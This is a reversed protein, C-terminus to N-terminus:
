FSKPLFIRQSLAKTLLLPNIPNISGRASPSRFRELYIPKTECVNLEGWSGGMRRALWNVTVITHQTDIINRQSRQRTPVLLALKSGSIPASTRYDQDTELARLARIAHIYM